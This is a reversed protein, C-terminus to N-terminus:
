SRGAVQLVIKGRTHGARNMELAGRAERLPLVTDIYPRIHGAEVVGAIEALQPELRSAAQLDLARAILVVLTAALFALLCVAAANKLEM